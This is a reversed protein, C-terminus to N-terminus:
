IGITPQQRAQQKNDLSKQQLQNGRSAASGVAAAAAAAAAHINCRGAYLFDGTQLPLIPNFLM